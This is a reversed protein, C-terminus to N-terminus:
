LVVGESHIAKIFKKGIELASLDAQKVTAM